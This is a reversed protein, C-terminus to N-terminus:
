ILISEYRLRPFGCVTSEADAMSPSSNGSGISPRQNPLAERGAGPGQSPEVMPRASRWQNVEDAASPGQGFERDRGPGSSERRLGSPTLPTASPTFRTGRAASWDREPGPEASFSSGRHPIPAADARAPLPTTRRWQGADDAASPGFEDRRTSSASGPNAKTEINM